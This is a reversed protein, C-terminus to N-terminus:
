TLLYITSYNGAVNVLIDGNEIHDTKSKKEDIFEYTLHNGLDPEPLNNFFSKPTIRENKYISGNSISFHYFPKISAFKNFDKFRDKSVIYSNNGKTLYISLFDDRGKMHHAHQVNISSKGLPKLKIPSGSPSKSRPKVHSGGPSKSRPKIHLGSPSKGTKAIQKDYAVHYTVRPFEKSLTSLEKFYPIGDLELTRDEPNKLVIHLQHTPLAQSVIHSVKKLSDTFEEKTASGGLLNHIMNHGDFIFKSDDPIIIKKYNMYQESWQNALKAGGTISNGGTITADIIGANAITVATGAIAVSSFQMTYLIISIGIALLFILLLTYFDM